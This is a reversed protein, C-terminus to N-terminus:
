KMKKGSSGKDSDNAKDADREQDYTLSQKMEAARFGSRLLFFRMVKTRGPPDGDRSVTVVAAIGGPLGDPGLPQGAVTQFSISYGISLDRGYTADKISPPLPREKTPTWSDWANQAENRAEDMVRAMRVDAERRMHLALAAAFTSLVCIAGVAFIALAIMIELLTFGAAPGHRRTGPRRTVPRRTGTGSPLDIM